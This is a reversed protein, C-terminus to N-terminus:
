TEDDGTLRKLSAYMVVFMVVFVALGQIAKIARSKGGAEGAEDETSSDEGSATEAEDTTEEVAALIPERLPSEMGARVAERVLWQVVDHELDLERPNTNM